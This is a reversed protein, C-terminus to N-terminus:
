ETKPQPKANQSQQILKEVQAKAKIYGLAYEQELKLLEIREVRSRLDRVAKPERNVFFATVSVAVLLIAIVAITVAKWKKM